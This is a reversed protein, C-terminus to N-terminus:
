LKGIFVAHYVCCVIMGYGNIRRNHLNRKISETGYFLMLPTLIRWLQFCSQAVQLCTGVWLVLWGLSLVLHSLADFAGLHKSFLPTHEDNLFMQWVRVSRCCTSIVSDCKINDKCYSISVLPKWSGTIAWRTKLKVDIFNISFPPTVCLKSLPGGLSWKLQFKQAFSKSTIKIEYYEYISYVPQFLRVSFGLIYALSSMAMYSCNLNSNM